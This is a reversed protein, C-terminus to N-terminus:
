DHNYDFIEEALIDVILVFFLETPMGKGLKVKNGMPNKSSKISGIIVEGEVMIEISALSDNIYQSKFILRHPSSKILNWNPHQQFSIQTLNMQCIDHSNM